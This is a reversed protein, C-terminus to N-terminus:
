GFDVRPTMVTLTTRAPVRSIRKAIGGRWWSPQGTGSYIRARASQSESWRAQMTPYGVHPGHGGHGVFFVSPIDKGEKPLLVLRM